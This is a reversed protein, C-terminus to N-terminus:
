PTCVEVWAKYVRITPPTDWNNNNIWNFDLWAGDELAAVVTAETHGFGAWGAMSLPIVLDQITGDVLPINFGHGSVSGDSFGGVEVDDARQIFVEGTADPPAGDGTVSLRIHLSISSGLEYGVLPELMYMYPFQGESSEVYTADSDDALVPQTGVVTPSFPPSFGEYTGNPLLVICSDSESGCFEFNDIYVEGASAEPLGTANDLAYGCNSQGQNVFYWGSPLAASSSYIVAATSDTVELSWTNGVWEVKAHHWEGPTATGIFGPFTPTLQESWGFDGTGPKVTVAFAISTYGASGDPAYIGPLQLVSYNTEGTDGSTAMFDVEIRGSLAPLSPDPDSTDYSTVGGANSGDFAVIGPDTPDKPAGLGLGSQGAVLRGVIM